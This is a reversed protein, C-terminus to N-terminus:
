FVHYYLVRSPVGQWCLLLNLLVFGRGPNDLISAGPAALINLVRAGPAVLFNLYEVEPAVLFNLNKAGPAILIVFFHPPRWALFLVNKTSKATKSVNQVIRFLCDVSTPKQWPTQYKQAGSPRFPGYNVFRKL